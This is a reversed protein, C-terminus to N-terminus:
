SQAAVIRALIVILVSPWLPLRGFVSAALFLLAVIMLITEVNPTFSM